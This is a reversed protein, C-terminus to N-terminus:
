EEWEIKVTTVYYETYPNNKASDRAEEYSSFVNEDTKMTSTTYTFINVRGEHKTPAFFLDTGQNIENNWTGEKKWLFISENQTKPDIILGVICYKTGDKRDTCLIRVDRGDRTVVKRKPNELYKELSFQEM